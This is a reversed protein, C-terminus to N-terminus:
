VDSCPALPVLCPRSAEDADNIGGFCLLQGTLSVAWRQVPHTDLQVVASLGAPVPVTPVGHRRVAQNTGCPATLSMDAM